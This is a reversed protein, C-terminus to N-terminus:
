HETGDNAAEPTIIQGAGQAAPEELSENMNKLIRQFAKHYKKTRKIDHDSLEALRTLDMNDRLDALKVISCDFDEIIGDIYESYSQGEQRTLKRLKGILEFDFGMRFLDDEGVKTDELLDHMLALTKHLPTIVSNMVRVVHHFYPLGAKDIQGEHAQAVYHILKEFEALQEKSAGPPAQIQIQM